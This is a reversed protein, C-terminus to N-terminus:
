LTSRRSPDRAAALATRAVSGARAQWGPLSAKRRWFAQVLRHVMRQDARDGSRERTVTEAARAARARRARLDTLGSVNL